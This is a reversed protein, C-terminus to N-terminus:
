EVLTVKQQNAHTQLSAQGVVQHVLQRLLRQVLKVLQGHREMRPGTQHLLILM